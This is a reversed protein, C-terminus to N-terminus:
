RSYFLKALVTQGLLPFLLATVNKEGRRKTFVSLKEDKSHSDPCWKEYLGPGEVKADAKTYRLRLWMSRVVPRRWKWKLGGKLRDGLLGEM